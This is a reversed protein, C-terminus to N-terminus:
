RLRIEYDPSNPSHARCEAKLALYADKASRLNRHQMERVIMGSVLAASFSTGSWAAFGDYDHTPRNKVWFTYTGKLYDGTVHQGLATVDVWDGYSSWKARHGSHSVAGVAVMVDEPLAAPWVERDSGNNGAAAVFVTEPAALHFQDIKDQLIRQVEPRRAGTGFSMNIVAPVGWSPRGSVLRDLAHVVTPVDTFSNPGAADDAVKVPCFRARGPGAERMALSAIFSGHLEAAHLLRDQRPVPVEDGKEHHREYGVAYCRLRDLHEGGGAMTVGDDLIAIVIPEDTSRVEPLLDLPRGDPVPEDEGTHGYVPFPVLDPKPRRLAINPVIPLGPAIARLGKAAEAASRGDKARYRTVFPVYAFNETGPIDNAGRPLLHRPVCRRRFLEDIAPRSLSARQLQEYYDPLLDLADFDKELTAVLPYLDHDRGAWTGPEPPLGVLIESERDESM